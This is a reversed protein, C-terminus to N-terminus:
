TTLPLKQILSVGDVPLLTSLSVPLCGPHQGSGLVPTLRTHKCSHVVYVVHECVCFLIKMVILSEYLVRAIYGLSVVLRNGSVQRPSCIHSVMGLQRDIVGPVGKYSSSTGVDDTM